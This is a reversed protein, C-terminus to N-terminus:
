LAARLGASRGSYSVWVAVFEAYGGDILRGMGGMVAAVQTGPGREAVERGAVLGQREYEAAARRARIATTGLTVCPLM